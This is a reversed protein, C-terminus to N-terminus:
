STTKTVSKKVQNFLIEAIAQSTIAGWHQKDPAFDLFKNWTEPIVEQCFENNNHHHSWEYLPVGALNWMLRYGRMLNINHTRSNNNMMWSLKNDDSWSGILKPIKNTYLTYRDMNPYIIFVGKPQIGQELMELANIYQVEMGSGPVGLNIVPADLLKSLYHNIIKDEELTSEGFVQSCGQIIFSNPWDVTDFEPARYSLSNMKYGTRGAFKADIM